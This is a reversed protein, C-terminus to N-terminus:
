IAGLSRGEEPFVPISSTLTVITKVPGIAPDIAVCGDLCAVLVLLLLSCIRLRM